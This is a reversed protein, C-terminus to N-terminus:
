DYEVKLNNEFIHGSCASYNTVVGKPCLTRWTTEDTNQNDWNTSGVPTISGGATLVFPFVDTGTINAGNKGDIDIYVTGIIQKHLTLNSDYRESNLAVCYMMGDAALACEAGAFEDVGTLSNISPSYANLTKNFATIKLHATLDELYDSASSYYMVDAPVLTDLNENHLLAQNAQEFMARAKALKPGIQTSSTDSLLGPLTLASVVGIIGLTILVEALTFGKRFM